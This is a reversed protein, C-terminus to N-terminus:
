RIRRQWEEKLSLESLDGEAELFDVLLRNFQSSRDLMPFHRAEPMTLMRVSEGLHAFDQTTAPVVVNDNAGYLVLLPVQLSNLMPGLDIDMVSQVSQNIADPAARIAEQEVDQYGALPSRGFVKDFFGGGSLFKRNIANGVLPLSVAMVRNVYDPYQHAFCVAVTAGLAHGVLPVPGFIGLEDLFTRLLEVYNTVNYRPKSKDSDGFGWLDFAYVRQSESLEDMAPMWYRWSGLWGHIFILPRGRGFFEYHVVANELVLASM